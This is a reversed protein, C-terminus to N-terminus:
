SSRAAWAAEVLERGGMELLREAVQRGIAAGEEARGSLHYRLVQSGDLSAIMGHLELTKGDVQALAGLPIYCGGQLTELLSREAALAQRTLLHDVTKLLDKTVEDEARTEVALAGQGVAPLCEEPSLFQTIQAEAGLRLVGAAALVAGDVEGQSVKRLRTEVNGRLDRFILDPRRAKIQAARRPSSTGLVAGPPLYSLSLGQRSVLVDRPDLRKCYAAVELGPTPETPLDKFSHVAMDVEGSLLALQIEKV